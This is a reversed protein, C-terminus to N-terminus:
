FCAASDASSNMCHRKNPTETARPQVRRKKEAATSSRSNRNARNDVEYERMLSGSGSMWVMFRNGADCVTSRLRFFDRRHPFVGASEAKRAGSSKGATRLSDGSTNQINESTKWSEAEAESPRIASPQCPRPFQAKFAHLDRIRSFCALGKFEQTQLKYSVVTQYHTHMRSTLSSFHCFAKSREPPPPWLVQSISWGCSM